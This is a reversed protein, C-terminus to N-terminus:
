EGQPLIITITTGEGLGSEVKLDGGAIRKLREKVNKIGNYVRSNKVNNRPLVNLLEKFDDIKKM